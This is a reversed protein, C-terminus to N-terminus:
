RRGTLAERIRAIVEAIAFFMYGIGLYINLRGLLCSPWFIFLIVAMAVLGLIIVLVGLMLILDLEWWGKHIWQWALLGYVLTMVVGGVPHVRYWIWSVSYLATYLCVSMTLLGVLRLLWAVAIGLQEVFADCRIM